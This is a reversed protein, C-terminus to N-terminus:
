GVESRSGEREKKNHVDNRIGRKRRQKKPQPPEPMSQLGAFVLQGYANLVFLKDISIM